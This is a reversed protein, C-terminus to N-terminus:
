DPILLTYDRGNSRPDSGDSTSFYLDRGWHSYRGGGLRRLEEHPAHAPGLVQGHELLVLRSHGEIDSTWRAPLGPLRWMQADVAEIPAPLQSALLAEACAVSYRRGNRRPDSGDRTSFIVSGRWHSYGGGGRSEIADHAVHAPGLATGNERLILTSVDVADCPWHEPVPAAFAHGARPTIREAPLEATEWAVRPLNDAPPAAGVAAPPESVRSTPLRRSGGPPPLLAYSRGNRNPDTHDSSSFYLAAGWHSWRGRGLTRIDDHGAGAPGLPLGDEYVVIRSGGDAESPWDSPLPALYCHRDDRAFPGRLRLTDPPLWYTRFLGALSGLLGLPREGSPPLAPSASSM